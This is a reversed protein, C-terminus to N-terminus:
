STAASSPLTTVLNSSAEVTLIGQTRAGSTYIGTFLSRLFVSPCLTPLLYIQATNQSSLLHFTVLLAM